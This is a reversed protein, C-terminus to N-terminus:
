SLGLLMATADVDGMVWVDYSFVASSNPKQHAFESSFKTGEGRRVRAIAARRFCCCSSRETLGVSICTDQLVPNLAAERMLKDYQLTGSQTGAVLFAQKDVSSIKPIYFQDCDYLEEASAFDFLGRDFALATLIAAAGLEYRAGKTPLFTFKKQREVTKRANPDRKDKLYRFTVIVALGESMEPLNVFEINEWRLTEDQLRKPLGAGPSAGKGCGLCVTISGPRVGTANM